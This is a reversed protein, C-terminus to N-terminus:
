KNSLNELTETAWKISYTGYHDLKIEELLLKIAVLKEGNKYGDVCMDVIDQNVKLLSISKNTVLEYNKTIANVLEHLKDTDGIEFKGTKLAIAPTVSVVDKHVYCYSHSKSGGIVCVIRTGDLSFHFERPNMSPHNSFVPEYGLPLLWDLIQKHYNDIFINTQLKLTKEDDVDMESWLNNGTQASVLEWHSHDGNDAFREIVIPKDM